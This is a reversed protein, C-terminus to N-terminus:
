TYYKGFRLLLNYMQLGPYFNFVDQHITTCTLNIANGYIELVEKFKERPVSKVDHFPLLM